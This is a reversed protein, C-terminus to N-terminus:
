LHLIRIGITNPLCRKPEERHGREEHWGGNSLGTHLIPRIMGVNRSPGDFRVTCSASGLRVKESSFARLAGLAARALAVPFPALETGEVWPAAYRGAM